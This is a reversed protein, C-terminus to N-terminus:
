SLLIQMSFAFLPNQSHGKLVNHVRAQLPWSIYSVVSGSHIKVLFLYILVEVELEQERPKRLSALYNLFHGRFIGM